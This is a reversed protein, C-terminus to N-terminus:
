SIVTKREKQLEQEVSEIEKLVDTLRKDESEIVKQKLELEQEPLEMEKQEGVQDKLGNVKLQMRDKEKKSQDLLLQLELNAKEKETLLKKFEALKEHLKTELQLETDKENDKLSLEFDLNEKKLNKLKDKFQEEIKRRSLNTQDKLLLELELIRKDKEIFKGKILTEIKGLMKDQEMLEKKIEKLKLVLGQVILLDVGFEITEKKVEEISEDVIEKIRKDTLGIELEDVTGQLEKKQIESNLEYLTILKIQPVLKRNFGIQESKKDIFENAIKQAKVVRGISLKKQMLANFNDDYFYEVNSLTKKFWNNLVEFRAKFDQQERVSIEGKLIINTLFELDNHFDVDIEKKWDPSVSKKEESVLADKKEMKEKDFNTELNKLTQDTQELLKGTRGKLEGVVEALDECFAASFFFSLCLFVIIKKM